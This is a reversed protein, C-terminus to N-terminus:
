TVEKSEIHYPSFKGTRFRSIANEMSIVYQVEGSFMVIHGHKFDALNFILVENNPVYHIEYYMVGYAKAFNYVGKSIAFGQFKRFYHNKDREVVLYPIDLYGSNKENNFVWHGRIGIM